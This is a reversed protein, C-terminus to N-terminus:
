ALKANQMGSIKVRTVHPAKMHFYNCLTSLNNDMLYCMMFKYTKNYQPTYSHQRIGSLKM